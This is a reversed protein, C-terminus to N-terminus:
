QPEKRRREPETARHWYDALEDATCQETARGEDAALSELLRFRREFKRLGDHMAEEARVGAMRGVNVLTFILDALEEGVAEQDDAALAERM